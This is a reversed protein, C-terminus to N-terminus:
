KPVISISLCGPGTHATMTPGMEVVPIEKKEKGLIFALEDRIHRANILADSHSVWIESDKEHQVVKEAVSKPLIDLSNQACTYCNSLETSVHFSYIEDYKKAAAEYVQSYEGPFPPATKIDAHQRLYEVIEQNEIDEGHLCDKGNVIIHIPVVNIDM